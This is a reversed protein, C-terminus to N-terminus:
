RGQSIHMFIRLKESAERFGFTFDAITHDGSEPIFRCTGMAIIYDRKNQLVKVNKFSVRKWRTNIAFGDNEEIGDPFVFYSLTELWSIRVPVEKALTPKFFIKGEMYEFDYLENLMQKALHVFERNEPNQKHTHYTSSINVIRAGWETLAQSVPDLLGEEFNIESIVNTDM